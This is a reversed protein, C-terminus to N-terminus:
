GDARPLWPIRAVSIGEDALAEAQDPTTEGYIGRVPADGRHMARAEEAFRPGVHDCDREVEARIRQLAARMEAPMGPARPGSTAVEAPTSATPAGAPAAAPVPPSASKRRRAIAPAMLGRGVATSGCAPCELLAARRQVEFADSSRFWGEFAHGGECRLQYNIM